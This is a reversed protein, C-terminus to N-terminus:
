QVVSPDMQVQFHRKRWFGAAHNNTDSDKDPLKHSSMLGNICQTVFFSSLKIANRVYSCVLWWYHQIIFGTSPRNPISFLPQQFKFSFLLLKHMNTLTDMHTNSLAYIHTSSESHFFFFFCAVSHLQLLFATTPLSPHLAPVTDLHSGVTSIQTWNGATLTLTVMAPEM